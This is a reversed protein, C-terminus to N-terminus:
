APIEMEDIRIEAVGGNFYATLSHCGLDDIKRIEVGDYGNKENYEAAMHKEAVAFASDLDKFFRPKPMGYYDAKTDARMESLVFVTKM